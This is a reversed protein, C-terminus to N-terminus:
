IWCICFAAPARESTRQGQESPPTSPYIGRPHGLGSRALCLPSPSGLSAPSLSLPSLPVNTNIVKQSKSSRPQTTPSSASAGGTSRGITQYTGGGVVLVGMILLDDNEGKGGGLRLAAANADGGGDEM